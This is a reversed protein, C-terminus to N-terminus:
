RSVELEVSGIRLRDGPALVADDFPCGDNTNRHRRRIIAGAGPDLL